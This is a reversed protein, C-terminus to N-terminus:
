LGKNYFLVNGGGSVATKVFVPELMAVRVSGVQPFAANAAPLGFGFCLMITLTDIALAWSKNQSTFRVIAPISTILAPLLLGPVDLLLRCVITQYVAKRAAVRSRAGDGAKSGENDFLAIGDRMEAKRMIFCSLSTAVNSTPFAAFRLVREAVAPPFRMKIVAALGLNVTLASGVAAFFTLALPDSSTTKQPQAGKHLETLASANRNHYNVLAIHAQNVANVFIIAPFSTSVMTAVTIPGNYPVFGAMRFPRPVVYGLDPHVASDKLKRASWLRANSVRDVDAAAPKKVVQDQYAVLMGVARDIAAKGAFLTVPDCADIMAAFRGFLRRQDYRDGTLSFPPPQGSCASVVAAGAAVAGSGVVIAALLRLGAQTGPVLQKIIQQMALALWASNM